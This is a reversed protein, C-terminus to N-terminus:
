QRSTRLLFYLFATLLVVGVIEFMLRTHDIRMNFFELQANNAEGLSFLRALTTPDQPTHQGFILHYGAPRELGALEPYKCTYIWPPFLIAPLLLVSGIILVIRQPLNM